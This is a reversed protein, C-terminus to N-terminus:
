KFHLGISTHNGGMIFRIGMWIGGEIGLKQDMNTPENTLFQRKEWNM